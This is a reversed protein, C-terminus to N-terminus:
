LSNSCTMPPLLFFSSLNVLRSQSEPGCEDGSIKEFEKTDVEIIPSCVDAIGISGKQAEIEQVKPEDPAEM